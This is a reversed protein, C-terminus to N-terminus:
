QWSVGLYEEGYFVQPPLPVDHGTTIRSNERMYTREDDNEPASVDVVKYDIHRVDLADLIAQQKKRVQSYIHSLYIGPSNSISCDEIPATNNM